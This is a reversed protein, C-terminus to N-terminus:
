LISNEIYNFVIKDDSENEKLFSSIYYLILSAISIEFLFKLSSQNINFLIEIAFFLVFSIIISTLLRLAKSREKIILIEKDSLEVTKSISFSYNGNELQTKQYKKM